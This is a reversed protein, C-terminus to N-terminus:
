SIVFRSPKILKHGVFAGFVSIATTFCIIVLITQLDVGIVPKLLVHMILPAVFVGIGVGIGQPVWNISWAGAVAGGALAGVIHFVLMISLYAIVMQELKLNNNGVFCMACFINMVTRSILCYIGIGAGIQSMRVGVPLELQEFYASKDNWAETSSSEVSEETQYGPPAFMTFQLKQGCDPCNSLDNDPRFFGCHDCKKPMTPIEANNPNINHRQFHLLVSDGPRRHLQIILSVSFFLQV